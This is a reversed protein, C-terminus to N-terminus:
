WFPYKNKRMESFAKEVPADFMIKLDSLFAALQKYDTYDIANVYDPEKYENKKTINTKVKVNLKKGKRKAVLLDGM